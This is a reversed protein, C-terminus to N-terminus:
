QKKIPPLAQTKEHTHMRPDEAATYNKKKM